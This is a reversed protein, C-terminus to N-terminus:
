ILSFGRVYEVREDALVPGAKIGLVIRAKEAKMIEHEIM